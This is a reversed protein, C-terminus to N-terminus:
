DFCRKILSNGQDSGVTATLRLLDKKIYRKVRAVDTSGAWTIGQVLGWFPHTETRSQHHNRDVAEV